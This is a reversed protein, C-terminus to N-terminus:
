ACSVTVSHVHSDGSTSTIQIQQNSALSAFDSASVTVMHNHTASGQINYQKEVGVSIDAKSVTISHGHNSGVSGITGNALCNKDTMPPATMMSSLDDSDSCSLISYFPIGILMTGTVKKIFSKRNM